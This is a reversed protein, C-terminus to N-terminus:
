GQAGGEEGGGTLRAISSFAVPDPDGIDGVSHIGEPIHGGGPSPGGLGLEAHVDLDHEWRRRRSLDLPLLDLVEEHATHVGHRNARHVRLVHCGEQVRQRVSNM